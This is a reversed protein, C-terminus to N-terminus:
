RRSRPGFDKCARPEVLTHTKRSGRTPSLPQSREPNPWALSGAEEEDPTKLSRRRCPRKTRRKQVGALKIEIELGWRLARM